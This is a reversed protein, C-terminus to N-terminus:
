FTYEVEAETDFINSLLIYRLSTNGRGVILQFRLANKHRDLKTVWSNALGLHKTHKYNLSFAM